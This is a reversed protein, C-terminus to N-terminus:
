LDTAPKTSTLMSLTDLQRDTQESSHKQLSSWWSAPGPTFLICDKCFTACCPLSAGTQVVLLQYEKIIVITTTSFCLTYSRHCTQKMSNFVAKAVCLTMHEFKRGCVDTLLTPSDTQPHHTHTRMRRDRERHHVTM